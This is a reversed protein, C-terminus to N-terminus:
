DSNVRSRNSLISKYISGNSDTIVIKYILKCKLVVISVKVDSEMNPFSANCDFNKYCQM